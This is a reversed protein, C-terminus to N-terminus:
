ATEGEAPRQWVEVWCVLEESYEQGRTFGRRALMGALRASLVNPVVLRQGTPLRDLYQGVAGSGEQEAQLFPIYLAGEHLVTYGLVGPALLDLLAPDAPAENGSM